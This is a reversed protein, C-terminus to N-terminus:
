GFLGLQREDGSDQDISGLVTKVTRECPGYKRALEKITIGGRDYETRLARDRLRQRLRDAKRIYLNTGGLNKELVLAARVGILQAVLSLEGPLDAPSPLLEDPLETLDFDKAM